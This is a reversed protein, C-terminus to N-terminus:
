VDDHADELMIDMYIGIMDFSRGIAYALVSGKPKSCSPYRGDLERTVYALDQAVNRGAGEAMLLKIYRKRTM